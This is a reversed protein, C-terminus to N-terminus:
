FNGGSGGHGNDRVTSGGSGGSEIKRSRTSKRVFRDTKVDLVMSGAKEYDEACIQEKVTLLRSAQIKAVLGFIAFGALLDMLFWKVGPFKKPMHGTDYPRGKEAELLYKESWDAFLLFGEGYQGKKLKPLVEEMLFAQGQDTFAPVAKGSTSIQWARTEKVILLLIGDEGFDKEDFYTDAYDMPTRDGIRERTIIVVSQGTKKRIQELTKEIKRGTKEEVLHAEDQFLPTQAASAFSLFLSLVFAFIGIRMSNRM